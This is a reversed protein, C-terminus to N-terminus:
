RVLTKTAKSGQRLIYLGPAPTGSVRVGQLNYYEAPGQAPATEVGDIASMVTESAFFNLAAYKLQLAIFKSAPAVGTAISWAGQALPTDWSLPLEDGLNFIHQDTDYTAAFAKVYAGTAAVDNLTAGLTFEGGVLPSVLYYTRTYVESYAMPNAHNWLIADCGSIKASEFTLASGFESYETTGASFEGSQTFTEEAYANWGAPVLTAYYDANFLVRVAEPGNVAMGSLAVSMPDIGDLELSLTATHTGTTAPDFSVTLEVSEGPALEQILDPTVSFAEGSVAATGSLTESGTNTVSLTSSAQDGVFELPFNIESASVAASATAAPSYEFTIKPLFKEQRPASTMSLGTVTTQTEGAFTWNRPGNGKVNSFDLVLNGGTYTFPKDLTIEWTYPIEVTNPLVIDTMTAAVSLGDTIYTTGEYQDQTTTGMKLTVSPSTWQTAGARTITFAVKDIVSGRMEELMSAPYIMQTHINNSCYYINLPLYTSTASADPFLSLTEAQSMPAAIAAAALLSSYFKKM